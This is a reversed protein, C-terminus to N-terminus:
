IIVPPRRKHESGKIRDEIIKKSKVTIIQGKLYKEVENYSVGLEEEDTQGPWLGASPAKTLITPPLKLDRGFQYVESKYLGVIPELDAAGDGFKTFYGLQYESRDTTGCVFGHYKNALAYLYTMRVRAILNGRVLRDNSDIAKILPITVPALDFVELRIGLLKVVAKVDVLDNMNNNPLYAALVQDSGLAKVLLAATVASDVGGSLGIIAKQFNNAQYFQKVKKVIYDITM